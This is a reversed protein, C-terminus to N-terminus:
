RAGYIEGYATAADFGDSMCEVDSDRALLPWPDRLMVVDVDVLLVSWGLDLFESLIEYKMASIAHNAGGGAQTAPIEVPRHFNAVGRAALTAALEADLAVVLWNASLLRAAAALWEGLTGERLLNSDSVAIMVERSPAVRRLLAELDNRPPGAYAAAGDADTTTTPAPVSIAAGPRAAGARRGLVAALLGGGSNQAAATAARGRADAAAAAAPAAAEAARLYAREAALLGACLGLLFAATAAASRGRADGARGKGSSDGGAERRM